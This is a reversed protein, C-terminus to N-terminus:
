SSAVREIADLIADVGASKQLVEAAGADLVRRRADDSAEFTFVLVACGARRAEGIVEAERGRAVGLDLIMVDARHAHMAAPIEDVHELAGVCELDPEMTVLQRLTRRVIAHDDVILVRTM